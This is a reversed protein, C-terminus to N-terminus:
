ARQNYLSAAGWGAGQEISQPRLSVGEDSCSSDMVPSLSTAGLGGCFDSGSYVSVAKPKACAAVVVGEGIAPGITGAAATRYAPMARSQTLSIALTPGGLSLALEESDSQDRSFHPGSRTGTSSVSAGRAGRAHVRSEPTHAHTRAAYPSSVQKAPVHANLSCRFAIISVAAGGITAALMVPCFIAAAVIGIYWPTPNDPYYCYHWAVHDIVVYVLALVSRLISQRHERLHELRIRRRILLLGVSSAALGAACFIDLIQFIQNAISFLLDTTSETTALSAAILTISPIVSPTLLLLIRTLAWRSNRDRIANAPVPFFLHAARRDVPRWFALYSLRVDVTSAHLCFIRWSRVILALLILQYGSVFYLLFTLPSKTGWRLTTLVVDASLSVIGVAAFIHLPYQRHRVLPLDWHSLVVLCSLLALVSTAILILCFPAAISASFPSFSIAM